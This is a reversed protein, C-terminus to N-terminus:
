RRWKTYSIIGVLGICTLVIFVAGGKAARDDSITAIGGNFNSMEDAVKLVFNNSTEGDYQGNRSCIEPSSGAIEYFARFINRPPLQAGIDDEFPFVDLLLVFGVPPENMLQFNDVRSLSGRIMQPPDGSAMDQVMRYGPIEVKSNRDSFILADHHKSGSLAGPVIAMRIFRKAWDVQDSDFAVSRPTEIIISRESVLIREACFIPGVKTIKKLETEGSVHSGAIVTGCNGYLCSGMMVICSLALAAGVHRPWNLYGALQPMEFSGV